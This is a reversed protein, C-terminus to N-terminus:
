SQAQAEQQNGNLVQQKIQAWRERCYFPEAVKEIGFTVRNHTQCFWTHPQPQKIFQCGGLGTSTVPDQAKCSEVASELGAKNPALRSVEANPM